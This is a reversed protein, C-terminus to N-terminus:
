SVRYELSKSSRIHVIPPQARGAQLNRTKAQSAPIEAAHSRRGFEVPPALVLRLCELQHVARRIGADIEEVGGIGIAAAPALGEDSLPELPFPRSCAILQEEARLHEIRDAGPRVIAAQRAAVDKPLDIRAERPQLGIPQVHIQNM